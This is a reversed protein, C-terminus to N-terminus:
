QVHYSLFLLPLFTQLFTLEEALPLYKQNKEAIITELNEDLMIAANVIIDTEV